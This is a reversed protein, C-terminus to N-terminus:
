HEHADGGKRCARQAVAAAPPQISGPAGAPGHLLRGDFCRTVKFLLVVYALTCLLEIQLCRNGACPTHAPQQVALATLLQQCGGMWLAKFLPLELALCCLQLRSPCSVAVASLRRVYGELASANHWTIDRGTADKPSM